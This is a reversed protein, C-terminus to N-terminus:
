PEDQGSDREKSSVLQGDVMAVRHWEKSAWLDHRVTKEARLLASYRSDPRTSLAVPEGSEVLRGDEIILVQPFSLTTAIDHSVYVLTTKEWNKRARDLLEQRQTRDLGRFPEDLLVLRPPAQLLTRALRVRQGEGGSVLRGGEGLLTALGSPLRGMVRSLDAVAIADSLANARDSAQAYHLNDFLSRNWLRIDPDVWAVSQRLQVLHEDSVPQKDILVRGAAARHFGLLLGVLTSKGAGSIGVVAVHTGAPIDISIDQLVPRGSLVVSVSELTIAVTKSDHITVVSALEEPTESPANLPEILRLTVNRLDPYQQLTGAFEGANSPLASAWYFLLLLGAADGGHGLYRSILLVIFSYGLLIQVGQSAVQVRLWDLRVRVWNTLLEEQDRALAREAGHTRTPSLGILADLYSRILTGAYTRVRLDLGLFLPQILFPLGLTTILLAMVILRERPVLWLLALATLTTMALTRMGDVVLQPLQRVRSLSHARETMDSIPRSRFYHDNITPLKAALAARLRIELYRGIRTTNWQNVLILGFMGLLFLAGVIPAIIRQAPPKIYGLIHLTSRFLVDLEVQLLAVIIAALGSLVIIGLQTKPLFGLLTRMPQVPPESLAARLDSPLASMRKLLQSQNEAQRGHVSVVVAGRLVAHKADSPQPPDSRLPMASWYAEPIEAADSKQALTEIFRTAEGGKSVAGAAVLATAMRVAADLQALAKWSRAAKAAALLRDIDAKGVALQTLRIILPRRFGASGLWSRLMSIPVVQSHVFVERLFRSSRQWQRGSAPDMIQVIDGHLRWCVVFHPMGTPHRVVVIAPLNQAADLLLHDVPILQQEASLGLQGAVDELTDISTGDVETQCAERLRGYSAQVGLGNLLASLAAPGCDMSSTQIIEPVLFKRGSSAPTATTMRKDLDGQM